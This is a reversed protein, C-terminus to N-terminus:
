LFSSLIEEKNTSLLVYLSLGKQEFTGDPHGESGRCTWPTV